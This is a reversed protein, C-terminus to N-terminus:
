GPVAASATVEVDWPGTHWTTTVQSGGPLLDALEATFQEHSIPDTTLADIANALDHLEPAPGPVTIVLEGIDIEDKYPCRKVVQRRLTTTLNMADNM